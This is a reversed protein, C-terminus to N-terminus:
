PCLWTGVGMSGQVCIRVRLNQEALRIAVVRVLELITGISFIFSFYTLIQSQGDLGFFIATYVTFVCHSVVVSLVYRYSDMSPNMEPFMSTIKMRNSIQGQSCLICAELTANAAGDYFYRRVYRNHPVRCYYIM